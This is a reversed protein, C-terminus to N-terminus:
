CTSNASEQLRQEKIRGGLEHIVQAACWLAEQAQDLSIEMEKKKEMKKKKREMKEKERWEKKMKKMMEMRRKKRARSVDQQVTRKSPATPLLEDSSQLELQGFTEWIHRGVYPTSNKNARPLEKSCTAWDVEKLTIRRGTTKTPHSYLYIRSKTDDRNPEVRCRIFTAWVYDEDDLTKAFRM